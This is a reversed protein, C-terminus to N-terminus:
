HFLNVCNILPCYRSLCQVNDQYYVIKDSLDIYKTVSAEPLDVHVHQRLSLAQPNYPHPLNSHSTVWRHVQGRPTLVGAEVGTHEWGAVCGINVDSGKVVLLSILGSGCILCQITCSSLVHQHLSLFIVGWVRSFASNLVGSGSPLEFDIILLLAQYITMEHYDGLEGPLGHSPFGRSLGLRRACKEGESTEKTQPGAIEPRSTLQFTIPSTKCYNTKKTAGTFALASATFPSQPLPPPPSQRTKRCHTM